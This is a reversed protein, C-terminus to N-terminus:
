ADNTKGRRKKFFKDGNYLFFALLCGICMVVVHFASATRPGFIFLVPFCSVLLTLVVYFCSKGNFKMKSRSIQCSSKTYILTDDLHDFTSATM